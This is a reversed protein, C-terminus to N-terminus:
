TRKIRATKMEWAYNEHAFFMTENVDWGRSSKRKRHKGFCFCIHLNTVCAVALFVSLRLSYVRMVIEGWKKKDEEPRKNNNSIPNNDRRNYHMNLSLHAWIIVREDHKSICATHRVFTSTYLRLSFSFQTWLNRPKKHTYAHTM